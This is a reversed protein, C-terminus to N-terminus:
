QLLTSRLFHSMCDGYYLIVRFVPETTLRVVVRPVWHWGVYSKTYMYEKPSKCHLLYTAKGDLIIEINKAAGAAM